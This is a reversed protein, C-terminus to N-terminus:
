SLNRGRSAGADTGREKVYILAARGRPYYNAERGERRYGHAEYLRIAGANEADVHLWIVRAGAAQASQEMRRMLEGGVGRGRREPAVEITQIYAAIAGAEGSWEVIAFGAMRGDEEAIWTAADESSVLRRMYGRGFRLPPQFCVEEIAYLTPFDAPQYLRYNM